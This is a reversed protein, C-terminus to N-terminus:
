SILKPLIPWQGAWATHVAGSALTVRIAYHRVGPALDVVVDDVTATEGNGAITIDGDDSTLELLLTGEGDARDRVQMVFDAGTLSIPDDNEDLLTLIIGEWTDGARHEPLDLITLYNSM